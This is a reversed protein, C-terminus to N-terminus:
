PAAGQRIRDSHTGQSGARPMSADSHMRIGRRETDRVDVFAPRVGALLLDMFAMQFPATIASDSSVTTTSPL